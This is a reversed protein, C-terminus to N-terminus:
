NIGKIFEDLEEQLMERLTLERKHKQTIDNYVTNIAPMNYLATDSVITGPNEFVARNTYIYAKEKLERALKTLTNIVVGIDNIGYLMSEPIIYSVKLHARRDELIITIGSRIPDRYAHADLDMFRFTDGSAITNRLNHIFDYPM